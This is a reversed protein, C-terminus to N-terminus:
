WSCVMSICPPANWKKNFKTYQYGLIVDLIKVMAGRLTTHLFRVVVGSLHDSFQDKIVNLDYTYPWIIGFILNYVHLQEMGEVANACMYM